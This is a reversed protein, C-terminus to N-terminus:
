VITDCSDTKNSAEFGNHTGGRLRTTHTGHSSDHWSEELMGTVCANFITNCLQRLMRIEWVSLMWPECSRWLLQEARVGESSRGFIEFRLVRNTWLMPPKLISIHLFKRNGCKMIGRYNRNFIGISSLAIHRWWTTCEPAMQVNNLIYVDTVDKVLFTINSLDYMRTTAVM